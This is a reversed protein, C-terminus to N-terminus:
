FFQIRLLISWISFCTQKNMQCCVGANYRLNLIVLWM